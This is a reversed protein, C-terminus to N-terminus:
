KLISSVYKRAMTIGFWYWSSGKPKPITNIANRIWAYEGTITHEVLHGGADYWGNLFKGYAKSNFFSKDMTM